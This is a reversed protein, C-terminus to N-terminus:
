QFYKLIKPWKKGRIADRLRLSFYLMILETFKFDM